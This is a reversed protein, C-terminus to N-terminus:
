LSPASRHQLRPTPTDQVSSAHRSGRSPSRNPRWAPPRITAVAARTAADCARRPRPMASEAARAAAHADFCHPVQSSDLSELQGPESPFSAFSAFFSPLCFFALQPPQPPANMPSAILRYMERDRHILPPRRDSLRNQLEHRLQGAPTAEPTAKM